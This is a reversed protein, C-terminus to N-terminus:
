AAASKAQPPIWRLLTADLQERRLPKALYDDMGAALCEDAAGEMAHATMAIVPTHRTGGERRRLELTAEYGDMVPMECDMLVVDFDHEALIALAQQGDAVVEAQCGARKLAHLVVTQNVPNDEVVLVHPPTSWPPTSADAVAPQSAERHADGVVTLPLELWFTSGRGPISSAGITGGMLAALQRAITLGLGTGGYNRTTAAEAQTFPEFMHELAAADIGIGTDAVEVRVLSRRDGQPEASVNVAVSGEATFKVANAILNLLIQRVRRDDGRVVQPTQETVSLELDLGKAEAEFGAAACAQEVVDRVVFETLDIDMRGAEIKSLDLIDNILGMMHEGSRTLQLVLARQEEDLKTEALIETIGLVGNMPTRIEHSMNALFASKEDTSRQAHAAASQLAQRERELDARAWSEAVLAMTQRQHIVWMRSNVERGTELADAIDGAAEQSARLEEMALMLEHDDDSQAALRVADLAAEVAEEHRGAARLCRAGVWALAARQAAQTVEDLQDRSEELVALAEDNRGLECLVEALLRKSGFRRHVEPPVEALLVRVATEARELGATNAPLGARREQQAALLLADATNQLARWVMERDGIEEAMVLAATYLDAARQYDLCSYCFIGLRNAIEVRLKADTVWDLALISKTALESALALEGLRSAHAAALSAADVALEAEGAREFAQMASRADAVVEATHWQNSSLRARCMLLRGRDAPDSSAALERVIETLCADRAAPTAARSAREYLAAFDTAMDTEWRTTDAALGASKM